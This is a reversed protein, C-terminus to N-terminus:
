IVEKTPIGYIRRLTPSKSTLKILINTYFKIIENDERNQECSYFWKGQMGNRKVKRLEVSTNHVYATINEKTDILHKVVEDVTQQKEM